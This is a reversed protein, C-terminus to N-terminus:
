ALCVLLAQVAAAVAGAVSDQVDGDDDPQALVFAAAGVCVAAGGLAFRHGVDDAAM